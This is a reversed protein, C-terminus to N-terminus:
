LSFTQMLDIIKYYYYPYEIRFRTTMEEAIFRSKKFSSIVHIYSTKYPVNWFCVYSKPPAHAHEIQEFLYTVSINKVKALCYFLYQEFIINFSAIDIKGLYNINRDIFNFALMAYEKFFDIDTGGLVGANCAFIDPNDSREKRIADPIYFKQNEITDIIKIYSLHNCDLNQSILPKKMKNELVNEWMYVDSDVHLFPNKQISYTYLKGIAWLDPHYTKLADLAVIVNSYPLKLKDILIVKGLYDTVLEVEGYIEKLKLCSLAWSMYYYKKEIWGGNFRDFEYKNSVIPKTWFSQVIKM